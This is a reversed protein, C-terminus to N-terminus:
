VLAELEKGHSAWWKDAEADADYGLIMDMTAKNPGDSQNAFPQRRLEATKGAVEYVMAKKLNEDRGRQEPGDPLHYLRQYARSAAQAAATRQLRLDQYAKLLPKLQNIDSIRSLLNGLVAADEIAMAAGQARYPKLLTTLSLSLSYSYALLIRRVLMPHCADGLLTVRGSDHTWKELPQRDLLRFRMNSQVLGLIKQVRSLQLEATRVSILYGIECHSTILM